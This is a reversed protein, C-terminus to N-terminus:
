VFENILKSMMQNLEKREEGEISINTMNLLNPTKMNLPPLVVSPSFDNSSNMVLNNNNNGNIIPEENIFIIKQFNDEDKETIHKQQSHNNNSNDRKKRMERAESLLHKTGEMRLHSSIKQFNLQLLKHKKLLDSYQIDKM